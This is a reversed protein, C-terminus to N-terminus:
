LEEQFGWGQGIASLPARDDAAPTFWPDREIEPVRPRAAAAKELGGSFFFFRFFQCVM